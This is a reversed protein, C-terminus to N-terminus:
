SVAQTRRRIRLLERRSIAGCGAWLAVVGGLVLPWGTWGDAFSIPAAEAANKGAVNVERPLPAAQIQPAPIPVGASPAALPLRLGPDNWLGEARSPEALGSTAPNVGVGPGAAAAGPAAQLPEAALDRAGKGPRDLGRPHGGLGGPRGGPDSPRGGLEGAQGLAGQGLDQGDDAQGSTEGSAEGSAEGSTQGGLDQASSPPEPVQGGFEAPPDAAAEMGDRGVTMTTTKTVMEPREAEGGQRQAVAALTVVDAGEPVTLRVDMAREGASERLTCVGAAGAQRVEAPPEPSPTVPVQSWNGLVVDPSSQRVEQTAVAAAAPACTVGSLAAAPNTAVALRTDHATGELRIRFRLVDGTRVWQAGEPSPEDIRDVALRMAADDGAMAASSTFVAGLMLAGAVAWGQQGWQHM